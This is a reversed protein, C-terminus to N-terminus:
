RRIRAPRGHWPHRRLGMAAFGLLGICAPEPVGAANLVGVADLDFGGSPFPTSFPDNIAHGLSDFTAYLPDISGVVDVLRVQTINLPDVGATAPLDALDFPTGFGSLDKGALNNLDSADLTGFTATQTATQTLSVAPFRAFTLGDTSVDVFALELYDTAAGALAFGNEFVALDPGPGDTIPRDFTLTIAGGDGLSVVGSRDPAGLADAPGGFTAPPSAPDALNQPGRTISAVGTAYGAFRPSDAPIGTSGPTGSRPSYPGALAPSAVLLAAALAARPLPPRPM